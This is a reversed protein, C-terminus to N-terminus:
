MIFFPPWLTPSEWSKLKTLFLKKSIFRCLFPSSRVFGEEEKELSVAVASTKHKAEIQFDDDSVVYTPVHNWIEVNQCVFRLAAQIPHCKLFHHWESQLSIHIKDSVRGFSLQLNDNSQYANCNGQRSSIQKIKGCKLAKPIEYTPIVNEPNIDTREEHPSCALNM